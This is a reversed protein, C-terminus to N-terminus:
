HQVYAFCEGASACHKTCFMQFSSYLELGLCCSKLRMLPSLVPHSLSEIVCLQQNCLGFPSLTHMLQLDSCQLMNAMNHVRVSVNGNGLGQLITKGDPSIAAQNTQLWSDHQNQTRISSLLVLLFCLQTQLHQPSLMYQRNM